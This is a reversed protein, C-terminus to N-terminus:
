PIYRAMAMAVLALLLMTAAIRTNRGLKRFDRQMEAQEDGTPARGAKAIEAGRAAMRRTLPMITAIGHAFGLIGLVAGISITIGMHTHMWGSNGHSVMGMLSLGSLIALVAMPSMYRPMKRVNNLHSMLAGGAPGLAGAAPAIFWALLVVAGVWLAGTVIHITRLIELPM